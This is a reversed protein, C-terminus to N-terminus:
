LHLFKKLHQIEDPRLFRYTGKEMTGIDIPGLSVRKLEIVERGFKAFMRRIQRKKGERIVLEYRSQKDGKKLLRLKSPAVMDNGIRMGRQFMKEQRESLYGDILIIYKKSLEFKPHTLHYAVDGDNTLLLLGETDKDLRGVPALQKFEAPLVDYITKEAFPDAKTTVCGEPKNFLVYQYHKATIEEGDVFVKDKPGVAFSPETVIKGNVKVAGSQVVEM